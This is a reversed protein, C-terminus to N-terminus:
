VQGVLGVLEPFRGPRSYRFKFDKKERGGVLVSGINKKDEPSRLGLRQGRPAQFTFFTVARAGLPRDKTIRLTGFFQKCAYGQLNM